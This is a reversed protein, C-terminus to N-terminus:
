RIRAESRGQAETPRALALAGVAAGLAGAGLIARRSAGAEPQQEPQLNTM